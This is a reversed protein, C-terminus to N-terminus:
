KMRRFRGLYSYAIPVVILSFFTGFLLGGVIVSGIQLRGISGPGLAFVLPLSGFIMAFSTMMIPRLRIKAAQVIADCLGSGQQRLENAFQTILIGHKTIMGILTMLGIQSYISLTGGSIKLFLLGGVVSLPVTLLIILPDIFSGFQASLVLYIFILSMLMIGIMQGSSQLYQASKGSFAYSINPKLFSKIHARIDNIVEGETYGPVLSATITGARFRNFHAFSGQGIIPTLTVLSSLPVLNSESAASTASLTTVTSSSGNAAVYLHSLANFNSLAQKRLQVIVQYSQTGAQVDTVHDGSLLVSVADAIDQINIGLEAALDRNITLLYQQQNFQLNTTVNTVGPYNNLFKVFGNVSPLLSQYTGSTVFNLEIDNGQFGFNTLPPMIASANVGPIKNLQPNIEQIVKESSIHRVGWPKLTIFFVAHSTAVQSVVGDVAPNRKIIEAVQKSYRNTYDISSGAPSNMYALLLGNDDKPLTESELGIFLGIGLALIVVLIAIFRLRKKLSFHLAREYVTSFKEFFRDLHTAFYGTKFQPRLVRSCMMPSLTLAVFGSIMVAAALTFGFQRFLVATVGHTFGLPAYVAALTLTMAIVAFAIERSGKLAARFPSEGEEIYRYINELMVIADDVVLGIALVVALLSLTNISFGVLKLFGFTAILSVPITVIPVSAASWSGLFLYVVLIVLIIAELIAYFTEHISSKLFTAADYNVSAKMGPPLNVIIDPLKAKIANAVSIPNATALPKVMVEVGSKGDIRLPAAYLSRYGLSVQAIDKLRVTGNDTRKVIIDQFQNPNSLQTGAIISYNRNPGRFSGASFYINNSTLAQTVDAITVGSAAMQQANLWIRMAYDSAGLIVIQGVGPLQRLVPQLNQEVYNRIESSDKGPDIFGIGLVENGSRSVDVTPGTLSQSSPLNSTVATGSVADRVANAEEDFNGGQRFLISIQSKGQSSTSWIYEVNDVGALANEIVTTVQSEMLKASAGSYSTTVTILPLKLEPFYRMQLSTFGLIGLIILVLSFVVALVPQRISIEPLKM